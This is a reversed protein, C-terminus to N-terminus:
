KSIGKNLSRFLNSKFNSKFDKFYKSSNKPNLLHNSDEPMCLTFTNTLVRLRSGSNSVFKAEASKKKGKSGSGAAKGRSFNINLKKGVSSMALTIDM